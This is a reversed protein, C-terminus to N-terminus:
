HTVAFALTRYGQTIMGLVDARKHVTYNNSKLHNLVRNQPSIAPTYVILSQERHSTIHEPIADVHDEFHIRIGEQTLQDTLTSSSRDYGFVQVSQANFWRAVASMGIGGIGILYVYKYNKM